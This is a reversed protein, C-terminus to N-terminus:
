MRTCDKPKRTFHHALIILVDTDDCVVRINRQGLSSENIVHFAILVNAEEHHLPPEQLLGSEMIIPYPDPGTIAVNTKPPPQM